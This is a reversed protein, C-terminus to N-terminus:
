PCVATTPNGNKDVLKNGALSFYPDCAPSAESTSVAVANSADGEKGGVVAKVTYTYTTQPNLKSDAFFLQKTEGALQAAGSGSSRYVKYTAANAVGDWRLLSQTATQDLAMLSPVTATAAAAMTGPKGKAALKEVMRWVAAIQVGKSTAYSGSPWKGSLVRSPVDDNYGWWDWCGMPNFPLSMDVSAMSQLMSTTAAIPNGSDSVAASLSDGAAKNTPMAQPYLVVIRNADAWESVGAGDVFSRGVDTASQMCGHFAIHLRCPEGAACAKPVYLYGESGMAIEDSSKPATAGDLLKLYPTQSFSKPKGASLQATETRTLKGYFMQLASGAADYASGNSSAPRNQCTNIFKGGTTSCVQCSQDEGSCANTIQAHAAPLNDKHFVQNAPAYGKYGSIASGNPNLGTYWSVLAQSVPLRVIGDNYGHFVWVAQRNINDLPDIKGAKAFTAANPAITYTFLSTVKGDMVLKDGSIPQMSPDGQMCRRVAAAAGASAGGLSSTCLFPGGATPAIGKIFSSKVVGMQVTMYAGSSIGSATTEKLDINLEPLDTLDAALASSGIVLGALGALTTSWTFQM